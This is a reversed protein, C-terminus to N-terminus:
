RTNNRDRVILGGGHRIRSDGRRRRRGHRGRNGSGRRSRSNNRKRSAAWEVLGAVFYADEFDFTTLRGDVTGKVEKAERPESWSAWKYVPGFRNVFQFVGDPARLDALVEDASQPGEAVGAGLRHDTDVGCAFRSSRLLM